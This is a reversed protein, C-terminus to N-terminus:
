MRLALKQGAVNPSAQQAMSIIVVPPGFYSRPGSRCPPRGPWGAGPRGSSRPRGPSGSSPAPGADSRRGSARARLPHERHADAGAAAAHEVVVRDDLADVVDHRDVHVQGPQGGRGSISISAIRLSCSWTCCLGSPVCRSAPRDLLALGCRQGRDRGRLQLTQHPSRRMVSSCLLRGACGPERDLRMPVRSPMNPTEPVPSVLPYPPSTLGVIKGPAVWRGNPPQYSSTASASSARSVTRGVQRRGDLLDDDVAALDREVDTAVVQREHGLHEAVVLGQAELEAGADAAHVVGAVGAALEM